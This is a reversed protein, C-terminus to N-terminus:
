ETVYNVPFKNVYVEAYSQRCKKLRDTNSVRLYVSGPSTDQVPWCGCGQDYNGCACSDNGGVQYVQAICDPEFGYLSGRAWLGDEGEGRRTAKITSQETSHIWDRIPICCDGPVCVFIAVNIAPNTGRWRQESQRNLVHLCASGISESLILSLLYKISILHKKLADPYLTIM